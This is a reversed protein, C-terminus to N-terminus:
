RLLRAAEVAFYTLIGDAGARKFSLLSELMTRDHDVWGRQSAASLTAYEGSVQYAYTPAGFAEKVRYVIDLYPMGPKVMVMDAGEALDLAVERLSEDGNAPDMQYTKKDGSGLNASSGVADRFPGYFASAYKAAYSMILVNPLGADDLATRIAGVRGDMMDSPAIVDCGAQAQIVAQQQLAAVTEDNVVYGDRVLGDQGHSSYPDLAVDCVIGIKEGHAQKVARVARCVLNDSNLAEEAEPTKKSPDTAPFLAVAPIGLEVAEGVADVLLDISLRDVGPMSPVAERLNQGEHIFVPWILDDVTLRNESVLRRSWDYRRNRRMRTAPFRGLYSDSM